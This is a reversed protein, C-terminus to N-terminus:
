SLKQLWITTSNFKCGLIKFEKGCMQRSKIDIREYFEFFYQSRNHYYRDFSSNLIYDTLLAIIKKNFIGLVSCPPRNFILISNYVLLCIDRKRDINGCSMYIPKRKGQSYM